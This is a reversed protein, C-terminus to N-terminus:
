AAAKKARTLEKVQARLGKIQAQLKQVQVRLELLRFFSPRIKETDLEYKTITPRSIKTDDALQQQTLGLYLRYKKWKAPTVTGWTRASRPRIDLVIKM